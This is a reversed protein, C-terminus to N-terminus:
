DAAVVDGPRYRAGDNLPVSALNVPGAPDVTAGGWVIVEEGTWVAVHGNRSLDIPAPPLSSWRTLDADAALAAAESRLRNHGSRVDDVTLGGIWLHGGPVQVLEVEGVDDMPGRDPATAAVWNEARADFRYAVRRVDGEQTYELGVSGGGADVVGESGIWPPAGSPTMEQVQGAALDILFGRPGPAAIASFHGVIQDATIFQPLGDLIPDDDFGFPTFDSWSADAPDFTAWVRGSDSRSGIVVVQDGWAMLYRVLHVTADGSVPIVEDTPLQEFRGEDVLRWQDQAPDYAVLDWGWDLEDGYVVFLVEGGVWAGSGGDHHDFPFPALPRWSDTSPNNAAGDDHPDGNTHRDTFGGWVVLEDGTWVVGPDFRPTLPSPAM